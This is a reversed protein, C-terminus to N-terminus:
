LFWSSQPEKSERKTSYRRHQAVNLQGALSRTKAELV